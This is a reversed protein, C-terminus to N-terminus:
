ENPCPTLRERRLPRWSYDCKPIYLASDFKARGGGLPGADFFECYLKTPRVFRANWPERDITLIYLHGAAADVGFADYCEVLPVHLDQASTWLSGPPPGGTAALDLVALLKGGAPGPEPDVGLVLADKERAMMMQASGFAHFKFERLANGVARMLDNNTDSRLFYGGRRRRGGEGEIVVAARYSAQYFCWGLLPAAGQPRMDRLSSMLVQVWARGRHLEPALPAPLLAALADPEVAYNLSVAEIWTTKVATLWRVSPCEDQGRALAGPDVAAELEAHFRYLAEIGRQTPRLHETGEIWGDAALRALTTGQDPLSAGALKGLLDARSLGARECALAALAAYDEAPRASM